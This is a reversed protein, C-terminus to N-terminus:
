TRNLSERNGRGNSSLLLLLPQTVILAVEGDVLVLADSKNTLPLM